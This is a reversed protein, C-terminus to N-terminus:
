FMALRSLSTTPRVPPETFRRHGKALAASAELKGDGATFTYGALEFEGRHRFFDPPTLRWVYTVRDDMGKKM